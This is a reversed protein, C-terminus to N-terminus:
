EFSAMKRDSSAKANQSFMKPTVEKHFQANEYKQLFVFLGVILILSGIIVYTDNNSKQPIRM